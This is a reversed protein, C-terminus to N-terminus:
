AMVETFVLGTTDYIAVEDDALATEEAVPATMVFNRVGSAQMVMEIIATKYVTGAIPIGPLENGEADVGGAFYAALNQAVQAQAVASYGPFHYVTGTIAVTLNSATAVVATNTLAVRPQIYDDVADVTAVSVEGGPGALLVDVQGAVLSSADVKVRNVNTGYTPTEQAWQRYVDATAGTSLSPWRQRARAIAETDTEKNRGQTALWTAGGGPGPNNVTVGPLTTFMVVISNNSVNYVAGQKEAQVDIDVYGGLTLTAGATNSFRLGGSTGVWLQSASITFPGAGASDYLRVTGKAAQGMIRQTGYVEYLQLDLWDGTATGLYAGQAIAKQTRAYEEQLAADTELITRPTSGVQWSTAPFTPTTLEFSYIDGAVFSDGSGLPGNAFQVTVGSTSVAYSGGGPVLIASAYTDGGNVSLQFTATGLEGTTAIKLRVSMPLAVNGSTAVSGSGFGTKRVFGIGQLSKMLLDFIDEKSPEALLQEFTLGM